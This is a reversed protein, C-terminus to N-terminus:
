GPLGDPRRRMAKQEYMRADARALLEDLGIGPTMDATVWGASYSLEYQSEPGRNLASVAASLAALPREACDEGAGLMLVAFEDGGMRAVIDSARFNRLLVEAFAVLATDGAKHGFRDNIEKFRDLDLMVLTIPTEQRRAAALAHQALMDFGRRNSLGTLPDLTALNLAAIESEIMAALDELIALDDSALQRPEHDIVCLTGLRLEPSGPMTLPCGAYFRVRPDRTVLPNDYFRHDALADPVVLPGDGTIAHGCFSVDRPTEQDDLGARSKFWQRDTDVLSVLAIPVGLLRCALRTVRDFREEPPTDLLGTARLAAVRRQENAPIPAAEM